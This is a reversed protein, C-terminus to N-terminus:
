WMELLNGYISKLPLFIFLTYQTCTTKMFGKNGTLLNYIGGGGGGRVNSGALIKNPCLTGNLM